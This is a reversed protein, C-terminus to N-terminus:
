TLARRKFHANANEYAERSAEILQLSNPSGIHRFALERLREDPLTDSVSAYQDTAYIWFTMVNHAHRLDNEDNVIDEFNPPNSAIRKISIIYCLARAVDSDTLSEVSEIPTRTAIENITTALMKLDSLMALICLRASYIKRQRARRESLSDMSRSTILGAVGGMMVTLIALYIRTTDGGVDVWRSFVAGFAGVGAGWVGWFLFQAHDAIWKFWWTKTEDM